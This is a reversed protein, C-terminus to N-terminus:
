YYVKIPSRPNLIKEVQQRCFPCEKSSIHINEFCKFCVFHGCTFPINIQKEYCIDCEKVKNKYKNKLKEISAKDEESLELIQITASNITRSSSVASSSSSITRSSSVASNVTYESFDSGFSNDHSTACSSSDGYIDNINLGLSKCYDIFVYSMDFDCTYPICYNNNNYLAMIDYRFEEDTYNYKTRWFYQCNYISQLNINYVISLQILICNRDKYNFVIKEYLIERIAEDAEEKSYKGIMNSLHLYAHDHNGLSYEKLFKEKLKQCENSNSNM